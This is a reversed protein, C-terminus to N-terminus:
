HATPSRRPLPYGVAEYLATIEAGIYRIEDAEIIAGARQAATLEEQAFRVADALAEFRHYRLAGRRHSPAPFLEAATRYDVNDNM